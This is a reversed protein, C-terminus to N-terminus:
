GKVEVRGEIKGEIVYKLLCNGRLIHGIWNTERRKITRKSNRKEKVKHKAENRV